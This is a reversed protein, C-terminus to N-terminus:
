FKIKELVFLGKLTFYFVNKRTQCTSDNLSLFRVLLFTASVIKLTKTNKLAWKRLFFNRIFFRTNQFVDAFPPKRSSTHDSLIQM